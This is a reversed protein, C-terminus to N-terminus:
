INNRNTIHGYCGILLSKHWPLTTFKGAPPGCIWYHWCVLNFRNINPGMWLSLYCLVTGFGGGPGGGWEYTKTRPSNEVFNTSFLCISLTSDVPLCSPFLAEFYIKNFFNNFVNFFLIIVRTLFCLNIDHMRLLVWYIYEETYM